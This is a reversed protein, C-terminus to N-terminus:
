SWQEPAPLMCKVSADQSGTPPWPHPPGGSVAGAMWGHGTFLWLPSTGLSWGPGLTPQPLSLHGGQSIPCPKGSSPRLAPGPLLYLLHVPSITQHANGVTPVTSARSSIPLSTWPPTSERLVPAPGLAPRAPGQTGLEAPWLAGSSMQVFHGMTDQSWRGPRPWHRSLLHLILDVSRLSRKACLAKWLRWSHQGVRHLMLSTPVWLLLSCKRARPSCPVDDGLFVARSAPSAPGPSLLGVSEM